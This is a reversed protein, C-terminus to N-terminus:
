GREDAGQATDKGEAVAFGRDIYAQVDVDTACRNQLADVLRPLVAAADDLFAVVATGAELTADLVRNLMNEVSWAVEGIDSAGVLRGSGKLTHFSRRMRSLSDQDAPDAKWKPLLEAIVALEERAEEIFIELIDDDIDDLAPEPRPA